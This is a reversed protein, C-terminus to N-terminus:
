KLLEQLFERYMGMIAKGSQDIVYTIFAAFAIM